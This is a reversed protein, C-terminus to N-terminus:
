IVRGDSREGVTACATTFGWVALALSLALDDRHHRKRGNADLALLEQRLADWHPLGEAIMVRGQECEVALRSLLEHRSVSGSRATGAGTITIPRLACRMGSPRRQRVMEEM